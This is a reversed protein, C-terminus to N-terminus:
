FASLRDSISKKAARNYGKKARIDPFVVRRSVAEQM